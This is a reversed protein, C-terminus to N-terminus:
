CGIYQGDVLLAVCTGDPGQYVRVGYASDPGCVAVIGNAGPGIEPRDVGAVGLLNVDGPENTCMGGTAGAPAAFAFASGAVLLGALLAKRM